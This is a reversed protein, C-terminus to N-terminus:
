GLFVVKGASNMVIKMRRLYPMADPHITGSRELCCMQRRRM